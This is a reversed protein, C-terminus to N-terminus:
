FVDLITEIDASKFEAFVADAAKPSPYIMDDVGVENLWNNALFARDIGGVDGNGNIDAAPIYDDDGEEALWSQALIVRDIGGIDGDNNIDMPCVTFTKGESWESDSYSGEGLARVRYSVEDGYTLGTIVASTETTIVSTWGDRNDSTYTLEYGVANEVANWRIQHRNAGYSSYVGNNGTLITPTALQESPIAGQYEYAGIDVIGGIIRKNGDIDQEQNNFINNGMNIAQSGETLSYDGNEIDSFLPQSSNYVLCDLSETWSKYNSLSNYAYLSGKNCYVTNQIITNFFRSTGSYNYIGLGYSNSTDQSSNKVVTCNTLTLTGSGNYFGAGFSYRTSYLSSYQASQDKVCSCIVNNNSILCNYLSLNGSGNVVGGGRAYAYAYSYVDDSTSTCISEIINGCIKTNFLVTTNSGSYIGGAYTYSYPLSAFSYSSVRNEEISSSNIILNGARNYIGGGYSYSCGNSEAKLKNVCISCRDIEVIGSDNSIGGGCLLADGHSISRLINDSINCGILNMRGTDNYIGGGYLDVSNSSTSNPELITRNNTIECYVLSIAGNENYIGGGRSRYTSQLSNESISCNTLELIGAKNYIGGGYSMDPSGNVTNKKLSCDTMKLNGINNYVGAGDYYIENESIECNVIDLSNSGNYIGGGSDAINNTVSCNILNLYGSNFIGGGYSSTNSTVYCDSLTLFGGNYIGGGYATKGGSIIISTYEVPTDNAGGGVIFIGGNNDGDIVVGDIESADISIGKENWLCRYKLKLRPLDNSQMGLSPDFTVTEGQTAYLIAERLSILHDSENVIDEVTTVVTSPTEVEKDIHDQFEYAGIDVATSTNWSRVLRPNGALDKDGLVPNNIGRDIAYSQNSLDLNLVDLNTLKGSNFIPAVKFGPDLDIINNGGSITGGSLYVANQANLSIISNTLQLSGSNNSIGYKGNGTITCNILLTNGNDFIGSGINGCIVSNNLILSGNQNCIGDGSNGWVKCYALTLLGVNYIGSGYTASNDTILCNTLTLFGSNYLGGGAASEKGGTIILSVLEVPNNETGGGVIMVRSEGNSRITIEGIGSADMSVGKENMLTGNELVITQGILTEAFTITQGALAYILAERLSILNDTEDIVDMATTVIISPNEIEKVVIDQFEYAGIDVTAESKWSGVIRQNGNLDVENEIKSNDGRDIACSNETLTFNLESFNVLVGSEFIPATKFEPDRGIINNGGSIKGGSFYYDSNSGGAASNQTIISNSINLSGSNYLGGFDCYTKTTVGYTGFTRTLVYNGSVTCSMLSLTGPNYIGGYYAWSTASSSYGMDDAISISEARNGAILDNSLTMVGNNYFGGSYSDSYARFSLKRSVTNSGRESLSKSFATNEVIVSNVVTLTGNNYVAGGYSYAHSSLSKKYNQEFDSADSTPNSYAQNQSIIGNVFLLTGKNNYIGGGYSVSYSDASSYRTLHSIPSSYASNGSVTSNFFSINGSNYIGGGYSYARVQGGDSTSTASSNANNNSITCNVFELTGENYVGGGRSTSGNSQNDSISCNKLKLTGSNYLGGGNLSTKGGVITLEIFEVPTADSGGSVNLVRSQNKADITIGGVDSSDIKICKDILLEQRNLEITQGCLSTDFTVTEGNKAYQIAERLSIQNDSEDTIDFITTVITSPAAVIKEQYEYAGIDIQPDTKWSAIVRNKGSLDTTSKMVSNDGRDVAWSTKILSLDLSDYNLLVGSENFVPANKFGPSFDVINDDGSYEGIINADTIFNHSVISNKISLTGGNYITGGNKATNGSITCNIVNLKGNTYIASGNKTAENAVCSCNVLNLASTSYIGSGYYANGRRISVSIMNVPITNSNTKVYFVRSREDADIVIGGIASADITIPKDIRLEVGCLTITKDSLNSDFTITDGQKAYLIAERLSIQNDTIDVIDLETTVVTSSREISTTLKETYEYAGIDVKPNDSLSAIIRNNGKIDKEHVMVNNDGHDIAWSTDTLSYDLSDGNLLQGSEDFSPSVKFGPLLGIMNNSGSFDGYIDGTPSQSYNISIISNTITTNGYSSNYNDIYNYLGGGEQACNGSISCNSISLLGLRNYIGAGLHASNKAIVCNYLALNGSNYIGGGYIASGGIIKLSILEVPFEGYSTVTFVGSKTNANITIGGISSADITIMKSIQIDSGNLIITKDALASDFIIRDGDKAYQVAERLSILLDTEDVQDDATTVIITPSSSPAQYEYAGIDVVPKLSRSAYIRSNGLVDTETDIATNDGRDIALSTEELSFDISEYNTLEGWEDYVPSVKFGPELGIINNQGNYNYINTDDSGSGAFNLAIISNSISPYISSYSYNYNYVGGGIGGGASNGAITCNTITLTNHNSSSISNYIGGGYGYSEYYMQNGTIACNMLTLFGNENFIGAGNNKSSNGSFFSNTANIASSSNSYYSSDTHNFLGGGNKNAINDSINCDKLNINCVNSGYSNWAFTINCIGGGCYAQNKTITCGTLNAISAKDSYSNNYSNGNYIGGGGCGYGSWYSSDESKNGSILTNIIEITGLANFVGGGSSRTINNAITCGSVVMDGTNHIGGGGGYMSSDYSSNGSVSCNFLAMSGSNYVGTGSNDSIECNELLIIGSNLVGGTSNNKVTCNLLKVNPKEQTPTGTNYLGVGSSSSIVCDILNLRSNEISICCSEYMGYSGNLVSMHILEVLAEGTNRISVVSSRQNADVTFDAVNSADITLGKDILLEKGNLIISQNSLTPSITIVGGPNVMEIAERLTILNNTLNIEDGISNVEVNDYGLISASVTESTLIYNDADSGILKYTVNALKTGAEQKEFTALSTVNVDDGEIIGIVVGLRSVASNSGDYYKDEVVTGNVTLYKQRILVASERITAKEYGERSVTVRYRYEGANVHSNISPCEQWEIGNYYEYLVNDTNYIGTVTVQHHKGDYGGTWGTLFIGPPSLMYEYAGIDIAGDNIRENGALDTITVYANNGMNIAQSDNALTYDDEQTNSFLTKSSNYTLCDSSKNWNTYTSLCNYATIEGSSKYIDNGSVKSSNLVIITNCVTLSGWYNYIGGGYSTSNNETITCNIINLTGYNYIGGGRTGSKNDYILCNTLDLTGNNYIGGGNSDASNDCIICNFLKTVGTTYIGGGLYNNSVSGDMITLGNLSVPNDATGGSINFVRDNGCGDIIIRHDSSITIGKKIQFSKNVLRITKDVLGPAFTIFGCPNVLDIAERLTTLNDSLDINDEISDVVVNDFGFINALLYEQKIYYNDADSGNLFYTVIASNTGACSDVFRATANLYVDQELIIGSVDGQRVVATDTGDYFKDEVVTGNVTLEKKSIVVSAEHVAKKSYGNRTVTVRYRYEGVDTHISPNPCEQWDSGNYFEYLITDGDNNGSLIVTHGEGDYDGEYGTLFINPTALMYEYAGIDVISDNIRENGVIDRSSIVYDNNGNNVAVSNKLLSFDGNVPDTFLDNYYYSKICDSSRTWDDFASITNYANLTVYNMDLSYIEDNTTSTHAIISNYLYIDSASAYISHGNSGYNFAITCNRLELFGNYGSGVNCIGGGFNEAINRYVVTNNLIVSGGKNYIGGGDINSINNSITSNILTLGGELIYIGGGYDAMGGTITVGKMEVPTFKTRYIGFVRSQGNADITINGISSADIIIEKYIELETGNLTITGGALGSDFTITDGTEAYDIAERISLVDDAADWNMPDELTNVIWTQAETPAVFEAVQKFGGAMVALLTREELNEVRLKSFHPSRM